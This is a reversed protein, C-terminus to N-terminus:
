ISIDSLSETKKKVVKRVKKKPVSESESTTGVTDQVPTDPVTSSSSEDKIILSSITKMLNNYSHMLEQNNKHAPFKPEGIVSRLADDPVFCKRDSEFQLGHTSIYSCIFAHIENRSVREGSELGMLKELAPIVRYKPQKRPTKTSETSASKRPRTTRKITSKLQKIIKASESQAKFFEKRAKDQISMNNEYTSILEEVTFDRYSKQPIQEQAQGQVDEDMETWSRTDPEPLSM